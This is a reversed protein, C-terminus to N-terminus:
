GWLHASFWAIFAGWAFLSAYHWRKRHAFAWQLFQTLPIGRRSKLAAYEPIAFGILLVSLWASWYAWYNFVLATV